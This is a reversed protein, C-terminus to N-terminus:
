IFMSRAHLLNDHTLPEHPNSNLTEDCNMGFDEEADADDFAEDIHKLADDPFQNPLSHEGAL